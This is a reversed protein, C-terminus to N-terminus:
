RANIPDPENSTEKHEVLDTELIPVVIEVTTGSGPQSYVQLVGEVSGARERMGALGWGRPPVHHVDVRFGVGEDIVRLVVQQSTCQLQIEARQCHAHRAVNTLAEQAVRFLVTEVLPDLRQCPAEVELAIDLGSRNHEEDALYKLAAVLGLDDLQAPRLDHVMRYIEQSMERSLFQLRGLLAEVKDDGSVSNRLTALDLTLATLFQATEDHLERAIRAREDEQAIVIHRLLEKRLAEREVLDRQIQELAVMREKQAQLFERQREDEVVQTARVLGLTILIALIARFVQIPVGTLELFAATNIYQAPFIDIPAVFLQTLSYLAFCWAALQLSRGLSYRNEVIADRAQRGLALAALLAGPVALAYRSLADAHEMWHTPTTQHLLSTAVVLLLYVVLLGLSVFVERSSLSGKQPRLVQLGYIILSTFSVILLGLRVWPIWAPMEVGFWLGILVGMELWEHLGHVFGFIALPWLVRAEALKPARQAELMMALGMSFFALGYVFFVLVINIDLGSAPM